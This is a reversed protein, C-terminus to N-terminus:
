AAEALKANVAALADGWKEAPLEKFTKVGFSAALASAAERSKAALAFVAKQLVPYEISDPKVDSNEAKPAPADAVAAEATPQTAATAPKAAEKKADLAKKAAAIVEAPVVPKDEGPLRDEASHGVLLNQPIERLGRIAADVNIFHLTVPIM